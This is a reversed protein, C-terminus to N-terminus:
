FLTPCSRVCLFRGEGFTDFRPPFYLTVVSSLGSGKGTHTNMVTVSRTRTQQVPYFAMGFYWNPSPFCFLEWIFGFFDTFFSLIVGKLFLCSISLSLCTLVAHVRLSLHRANPIFLLLCSRGVGFRCCYNDISMCVQAEFVNRSWALAHDMDAQESPSEDERRLKM